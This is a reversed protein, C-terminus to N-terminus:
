HNLEYGFKKPIKGEKVLDEAVKYAVSTNLRVIYRIAERADGSEEILALCANKICHYTYHRHMKSPTPLTYFSSFLVVSLVIRLIYTNM